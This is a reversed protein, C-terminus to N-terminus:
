GTGPKKNQDHKKLRLLTIESPSGLRVPPGWYGTGRSIYIRTNKHRHLGAVYPQFFHVMLNWPFFQGGHTHGSIQLDYGADAAAYISKPQHALLIKLDVPPAGALAGAPDSRHSEHFRGGRYDTVGGLLLKRGRHEIVRHANNLVTYGLSEM